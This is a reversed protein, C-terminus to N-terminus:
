RKLSMIMCGCPFDVKKIPYETNEFKITERM